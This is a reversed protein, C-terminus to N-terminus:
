ARSSDAAGLLPHALLSRFAVAKGLVIVAPAPYPAPREALEGLTGVVIEEEATTGRHIV